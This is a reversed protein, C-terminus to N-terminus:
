AFALQPAGLLISNDAKVIYPLVDYANNASSLDISGGGGPKEYDGHISLTAGSGSSPQILIIVGTQGIQSAETTPAALTNSGSALTVIFNQYTDFDLVGSTTALADTYVSPVQAKTFTNQNSTQVVSSHLSVAGSAVSFDTSAFSAIGKNSDTADEGSITITDTAGVIADIGDGATVTLTNGDAITQTNSGDSLTFNNMSGSGDVGSYSFQITIGDTDSFTGNSAVHTVPVKTYGTANTVAGSVKFVAYTSPTDEKSILLIGRATANAVDDWSQVFGSINVAHDDVDDVYLVTVSAVTGNNFSLKGAGPDADTTSSNWTMDLGADSGRAGTSGAAGTAGTAGTPIGLAFTATGGSTSVTATASGGVAVTSVTVAAGTLQSVAEPAGSSSNFGLVKGLRAAINPVVFSATTDSDALTLSRTINTELEQQIAIIRDLETNLAAINFPGSTAFDTTRTVPIDRFITVTSSTYVSGLTINGGSFGDDVATGTVAFTGAGTGRTLTTDVGSANTIIVNIDDLAFFPFDITFQTSDATNGGSGISHQKRADNDAISITAM